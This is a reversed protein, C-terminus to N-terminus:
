LAIDKFGQTIEEHTCSLVMVLNSSYSEFFNELHHGKHNRFFGEFVDRSYVVMYSLPENTKLDKLLEKAVAVRKGARFMPRDDNGTQALVYHNTKNDSIHYLADISVKRQKGEWTYIQGDEMFRFTFGDKKIEGRGENVREVLCSTNKEQFDSFFKQILLLRLVKPTLYIRSNYYGANNMFSQMEEKLTENLDVHYTIIRKELSADGLEVSLEFGLDKTNNATLLLTQM